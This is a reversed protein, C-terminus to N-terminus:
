AADDFRREFGDRISFLGRPSEALRLRESREQCAICRTAWPIAALRAEGITRDCRDCRGYRGTRIRDLAAQIQRTRQWDAEITQVAVAMNEVWVAEDIADSCRDSQIAELRTRLDRALTRDLTHRIDTANTM